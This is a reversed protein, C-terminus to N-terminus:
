EWGEMLGSKKSSKRQNEGDSEAGHDMGGYRKRRGSLISAQTSASVSSKSSTGTLVVADEDDRRARAALDFRSGSGAGGVAWRGEEDNDDDFAHVAPTKARGGDGCNKGGSMGGTSTSVVTRARYDVGAGKGKGVLGKKTGGRSAPVRRRSGFDVDEDSDPLADAEDDDEEEEEEPEFPTGEEGFSEEDGERDYPDM